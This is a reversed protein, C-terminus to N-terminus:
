GLTSAVSPRKSLMGSCSTSSRSAAHPGPACTSSSARRRAWRACSSHPSIPLYQSIYPSIPLCLSIYPSLPSTYSAWRACSREGYRGRDGEIERSRGIDGVDRAPARGLGLGLALALALGLGLGLRLGLGIGLWSSERSLSISEGKAIRALSLSMQQPPPRGSSMVTMTDRTMSGVSSSGGGLKLAKVPGPVGGGAM